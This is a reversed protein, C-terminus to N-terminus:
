ETETQGASAENTKFRKLDKASIILYSIVSALFPIAVIIGYIINQGQTKNEVFPFTLGSWLFINLWLAFIIMGIWIRAKLTKVTTEPNLNSKFM